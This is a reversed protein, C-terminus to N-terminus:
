IQTSIPKLYTWLAKVCTAVNSRKGVDQLLINWEVKGGWLKRQHLWEWFAFGRNEASVWEQRHIEEDMLQIELNKLTLIVALNSKVYWWLVATNLSVVSPQRRYVPERPGNSKKKKIRPGLMGLLGKKETVELNATHTHTHTHASGCREREWDRVGWQWLSMSCYGASMGARQTHKADLRQGNRM